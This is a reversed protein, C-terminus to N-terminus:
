KTLIIGTKVTGIETRLGDHFDGDPIEATIRMTIEGQGIHTSDVLAIYNSEDTRLMDGKTVTVRRNSYCYFDCTFDYDDMTIGGIPEVHVNVKLDTGVNTTLNVSM